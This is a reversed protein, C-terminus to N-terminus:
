GGVVLQLKALTGALATRLVEAKLDLRWSATSASTAALLSGAKIARAISAPMKVSSVLSSITRGPPQTTTTIHHQHSHGHATQPVRAKVQSQQERESM